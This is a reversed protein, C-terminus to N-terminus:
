KFFNNHKGFLLALTVGLRLALECTKKDSSIRIEHELYKYATSEEVIGEGICVNGGLVSNYIHFFDKYEYNNQTGEM